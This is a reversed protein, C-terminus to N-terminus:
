NIKYAVFAVKPCYECTAGRWTGMIINQNRDTLKFHISIETQFGCFKGSLSSKLMQSAYFHTKDAPATWVHSLGNFRLLIDKDKKELTFIAPTDTFSTEVCQNVIAHHSKEDLQWISYLYNDKGKESGPMVCAFLLMSLGAMSYITIRKM